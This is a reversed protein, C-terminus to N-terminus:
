CRRLRAGGVRRLSSPLALVSRGIISKSQEDGRQRKGASDNVREEAIAEALREAAQQRAEHDERREDERRERHALVGGAIRGVRELDMEELPDAPLRAARVDCHGLGAQHEIRSM